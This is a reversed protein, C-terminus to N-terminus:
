NERLIHGALYLSGCIIVRAQPHHQGLVSLASDVDTATTASIEVSKAAQAIDNPSVANAEGPIGIAILSDAIDAMPRLFGAVDKTNIMGCILHTKRPPLAKITDALAKGAAPNHGGDLWLEQGQLRNVLKGTTLRQMRAPWTPNAMAAEYAAE